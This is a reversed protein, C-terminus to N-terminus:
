SPLVATYPFRFWQRIINDVFLKSASSKFEVAFFCPAVLQRCDRYQSQSQFNDRFGDLDVSLEYSWARAEYAKLFIYGKATDENALIRM